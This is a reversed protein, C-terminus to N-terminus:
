EHGGHQRLFEAVDKHSYKAAWYLPTHDGKNDRANVEAGKSLL